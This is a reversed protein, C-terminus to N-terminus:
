RSDVLVTLEMAHLGQPRNKIRRTGIASLDDPDCIDTELARHLGTWKSICVGAGSDPLTISCSKFDLTEERLVCRRPQKDGYLLIYTEFGESAKRFVKNFDDVAIGNDGKAMRIEVDENDEDSDFEWETTIEHEWINLTIGSREPETFTVESKEWDYSHEYLCDRLLNGSKRAGEYRLVLPRSLFLIAYLDETIPKSSQLDLLRNCIILPRLDKRLAKPPTTFIENSKFLNRFPRFWPSHSWDQDM